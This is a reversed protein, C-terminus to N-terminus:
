KQMLELIDLKMGLMDEKIKGLDIVVKNEERYAVWSKYERAYGKLFIAFATLACVYGGLAGVLFSLIYNNLSM